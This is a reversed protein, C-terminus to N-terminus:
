TLTDALERMSVAKERLSEITYEWQIITISRIDSLEMLRASVEVCDAGWRQQEPTRDQGAGYIGYEAMKTALEKDTM